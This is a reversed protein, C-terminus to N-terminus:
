KLLTPRRTERADDDGLACYSKYDDRTLGIDRLQRDDLDALAQLTRRRNRWKKFSTHLALLADIALLVIHDDRLLVSSNHDRSPGGRNQELTKGRSQVRIKTREPPNFDEYQVFVSPTSRLQESMQKRRLATWLMDTAVTSSLRLM